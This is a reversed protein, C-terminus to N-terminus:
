NTKKLHKIEIKLDDHILQYPIGYHKSLFLEVPSDQGAEPTDSEYLCLHAAQLPSGNIKFGTVDRTQFEAYIIREAPPAIYDWENETSLLIVPTRGSADFKKSLTFLGVTSVAPTPIYHKSNIARTYEQTTNSNQFTYHLDLNATDVKFVEQAYKNGISKEIRVFTPYFFQNMEVHVLVKLFEGNEIRSTIEAYHHYSNSDLLKVLKFSEQSFNTEGQSYQYSGEILIEANQAMGLLLALGM